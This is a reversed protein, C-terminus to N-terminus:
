VDAGGVSPLTFHVTTGVGPTSELWVRGGHREAIKRVISLGLGTGEYEDRTHLRQFMGFVREHYKLPIGIGNDRVHFHWVAGEEQAGVQIEPTVGPRRFKVANGILNQFLQTLEREDGLVTPSEAVTVQAGAAQVAASINSLAERLPGETRVPRLPDRDANLRSFVLLDDILQKLRVTGGIVMSLYQRGRDDLVNAYRREILGSFSAITRLPEQLDHSAVFAFRELEANSRQLERNTAELTDRQEQLNTAAEARELALALAAAGRRLLDRQGESWEGGGARWAVVAGVVPGDSTLVPEIACAMGDLGPAHEPARAYDELYVPQGSAVVQALVPTDAMAREKQELTVRVVDPVEGWITIPKAHPGAVPVVMLATVGLAPGLTELAQVVVEDPLTVVQLADGLAALVEARGRAEEREQEARARDSVNIAVGVMGSVQGRQDRMPQYWSELTIGRLTGIEHVEEGALARKMPELVEPVQRYLDLANQGVLENPQRGLASLAAGASILYHGEADLAFLILPASSVVAQLVAALRREESIIRGEPILLIVEGREDRVPKLSFDITAAHGGADLIDVDYRVTEGAAARRLADRLEQRGEESHRWWPGAWFPQGIVEHPQTGAFELATRNAEILRGEPDLLGILQFQSDFISRFRRESEQLDRTREQIRHELFANLDQLTRQAEVQETIDTHVGVWERLSGDGNLVPVARVHFHRYIGGGACVRHEVEFTTRGAVAHRWAELTFARDDPHLAASWGYGEYEGRTQGTLAAWGPQEGLMEGGPSNTWVVQRTADILSRYRQESHDAAEHLQANDLALAARGALAQALELDAEGYMRSPHTTALGLVGINRGHITLPVNMVSHLGMVYFADRLESEPLADMIGPPVTPVLVPHGTQLVWAPSGPAEPDHPVQALFWHLLKVKEPDPHAAAVAVMRGTDDPLYVAAWDAVHQIALATIRELTATVDLSKALATGAEALLAARAHAAHEADYQRARRLAQSSVEVLALLHPRRDPTIDEEQEFSLALCGLVQGSAILPLAAVAHTGPGLLPLVPAHDRRLDDLSAFVPRKTRIAAVEPFHEDVPFRRWSFEFAQGHGATGVTYLTAGDVVKILSAGCAAAAPVVQQLIIAEVDNATVAGALAATVAQLHRLRNM